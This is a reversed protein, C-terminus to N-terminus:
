TPPVVLMEILARAEGTNQGLLWRLSDTVGCPPRPTHMIEPPIHGGAIELLVSMNDGCLIIMFKVIPACHASSADGLVLNALSAILTQRLRHNERFADRFSTLISRRLTERVKPIRLAALLATHHARSPLRLAAKVTAAQWSELRSIDASGLPCLACGFLLAPSVIARWLYAKDSAPLQPSFMGARSLGFYAGRGRSVRADVHVRGQLNSHLHVGLHETYERCTLLQSCLHWEPRQAVLGAVFIFCHSKTASPNPNVFDLRWSVSFESVSDLLTQLDLANGSMILLDDAYAVVPIHKGCVM